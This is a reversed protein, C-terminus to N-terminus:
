TPSCFYCKLQSGWPQKFAMNVSHDSALSTHWAHWRNASGCREELLLYTCTWESAVSSSLKSMQCPVLTWLDRSPQTLTHENFMWSIARVVPRSIPLHLVNVNLCVTDEERQMYFLIPCGASHKVTHERHLAARPCCPSAEMALSAFHVCGRNNLAICLQLNCTDSLGWFSRPTVTQPKISWSCSEAPPWAGVM